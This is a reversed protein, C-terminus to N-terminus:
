LASLGDATNWGWQLEGAKDTYQRAKSTLMVNQGPLNTLLEGLKMGGAVKTVHKRFYGVRDADSVNFVEEVKTGIEPATQSPDAIELVEAVKYKFIISDNENGSKDKIPKRQIDLIEVIYRGSPLHARPAIEPLSDITNDLADDFSFTNAAM